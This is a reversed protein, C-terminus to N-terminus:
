FERPRYGYLLAGTRFNGLPHHHSSLVFFPVLFVGWPAIEKLKEM